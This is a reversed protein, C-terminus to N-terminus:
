YHFMFDIGYMRPPTFSFSQYRGLDQVRFSNASISTNQEEDTLNRGWLTASFHGESSYWNLRADIQNYSPALEHPDNFFSDYFKDRWSYSVTPLLYSGDEFDFRYSANVSFKNEPSQSLQNGTVDAQRLPDVLTNAPGPA